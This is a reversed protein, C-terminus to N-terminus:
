GCVSASRASGSRSARGFFRTSSGDREETSSHRLRCLGRRATYVFFPFPLFSLSLHTCAGSWSAAGPLLDAGCRMSVLPAEGWAHIGPDGRWKIILRINPQNHGGQDPLEHAIPSALSYFLFFPFLENDELIYTIPAPMIARACALAIWM